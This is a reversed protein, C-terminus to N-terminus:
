TRPRGLFEQVRPPLAAESERWNRDIRDLAHAVGYPDGREPELDDELRKTTRRAEETCLERDLLAILPELARADGIEGLAKGAAVAREGRYYKNIAAILPEVADPVGILGLVEAAHTPSGRLNRKDSLNAVLAPVARKAAESKAWNADIKRLAQSAADRVQDHRDYESLLVVLPEVARVDGIRGLAEAAL